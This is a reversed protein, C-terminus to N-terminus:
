IIRIAPLINAFNMGRWFFVGAGEWATPQIVSVFPKENLIIVTKEFNISNIKLLLDKKPRWQGLCSM